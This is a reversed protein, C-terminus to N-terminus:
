ACTRLRATIPRFQMMPLPDINVEIHDDSVIDFDLVAATVTSM